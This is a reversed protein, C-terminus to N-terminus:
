KALEHSFNYLLIILCFIKVELPAFLCIVSSFQYSFRVFPILSSSQREFSLPFARYMVLVRTSCRGITNRRTRQLMQRRKLMRIKYIFVTRQLMLENYCRENYCLASCEMKAKHHSKTSLGGVLQM